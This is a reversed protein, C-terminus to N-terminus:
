RSGRAYHQPSPLAPLLPGHHIIPRRRLQVLGLRSLAAAALAGVNQTIVITNFFRRRLPAQGSVCFIVSYILFYILMHVHVYAFTFRVVLLCKPVYTIVFASLSVPACFCILSVFLFPDVSLMACHSLRHGCTGQPNFDALLKRVVVTMSELYWSRGLRGLFRPKM